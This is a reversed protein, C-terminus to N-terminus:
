SNDAVRSVVVGVPRLTAPSFSTRGRAAADREGARDREGASESECTLRCKSPPTCASLLTLRATAGPSRTHTSPGFPEPLDVSADTSHPSSAGSSPVTSRTPSRTM